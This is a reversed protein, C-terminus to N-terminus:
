LVESGTVEINARSASYGRPLNLLPGGTAGEKWEPTIQHLECTAVVVPLASSSVEFRGGCVGSGQERESLECFASRMMVWWSRRGDDKM